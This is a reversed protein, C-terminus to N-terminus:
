FHDQKKAKVLSFEEGYVIESCARAAREVMVNSSWGPFLEGPANQSWVPKKM